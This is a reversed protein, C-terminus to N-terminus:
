LFNGSLDVRTLEASRSHGQFAPCLIRCPLGRPSPRTHTLSRAYIWPTLWEIAYQMLEDHLKNAISSNRTLTITQLRSLRVVCARIGRFQEWLRPKAAHQLMGANVSSIWGWVGVLFGRFVATIDVCFEVACKTPVYRHSYPKAGLSPLPLMIVRRLLVYPHTTIIIWRQRIKKYWALRLTILGFRPHFRSLLKQSISSYQEVM